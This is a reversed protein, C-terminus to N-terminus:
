MSEMKNSVWSIYEDLAVGEVVIPMFGHNAGCLESCQGYFV